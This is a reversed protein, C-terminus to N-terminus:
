IRSVENQKIYTSIQRTHHHNEKPRANALFGFMRNKKWKKM